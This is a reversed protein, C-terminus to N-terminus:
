PLLAAQLDREFVRLRELLVPIALNRANELDVADPLLLRDAGIAPCSVFWKSPYDIHSHVTFRLWRGYFTWSDKEQRWGTRQMPPITPVPKPRTQKRAM